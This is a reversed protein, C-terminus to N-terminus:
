IVSAAQPAPMHLLDALITLGRRVDERRQPACLSLRIAHPAANRGVIFADAGTVAVGAQAAATIFDERRWPEPLRLWAHHSNPHSTVAYGAMIEALLVNRAAAEERQWAAFRDARGDQILLSAVEALLPPAMRFSARMVMDLRPMLAPSAALYGVRLGPAVSKSLSNLYITIDPALAAIPPPADPHLFGFVDDEIITVGYRRAIDAIEERRELPQTATTPNHLTPVTYLARPAGHRCAADFATPVLGHEDMALGELRLNLSASLAKMGAYTLCETVIRDGPRTVAMTALAMGSQCGSTVMVHEAPVSLGSRRLWDAGAARHRALGGIPVYEMLEALADTNRGAITRLTEAVAEEVGSRAASSFSFNITDSQPPPAMVPVDGPAPAVKSGRVFTGRGVEGSVLGRREAETYARTITGVTVGLHQALDRHTPLRAGLPARGSAIDAELADAIALYRPGSRGTLNPRWSTM